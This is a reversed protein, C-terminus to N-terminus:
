RIVLLKAAVKGKPGSDDATQSPCIYYVGSKVPAGGLDRLNWRFTGGLSTGSHVLNGMADVVKVLSANMLGDVTVMGNYGPRVPNPYVRVDDFDDHGPSQESAYVGMGWAGGVYVKNTLPDLALASVYNSPLPSNDTTFQEVIEDYEPSIVSVGSGETSVWMRGASDFDISSVAVNNLLYSATGTGDNNNVKFRRVRDRAPDFTAPNPIAFFGNRSAIILQGNPDEAAATVLQMNIVNGDQDYVNSFGVGGSANVDSPNSGYRYIYFNDITYKGGVAICNSRPLMRLFGDVDCNFSAPLLYSGDSRTTLWDSKSISAAPLSVKAAPLMMLQPGVKSDGPAANSLLVWLNGASDFCVDQIRQGYAGTAPLNDVTPKYSVADSTGAFVAEAVRGRIRFLGETNTAVWMQDPDLPNQAVGLPATIVDGYRNRTDATTAQYVVRSVAMLDDSASPTFDSVNGDAVIDIFCPTYSGYAWFGGMSELQLPEAMAGSGSLVGESNARTYIIIADRAANPTMRSVNVVSRVDPRHAGELLVPPKQSLDYHLIGDPTAIWTHRLADTSSITSFRTLSEPYNGAAGWGGGENFRAILSSSLPLYLMDTDFWPDVNKRLYNGPIVSDVMKGTYGWPLEVKHIRRAGSATASEAAIVDAGVRYIRTAPSAGNDAAIRGVYTFKDTERYSHAPDAPESSYLHGGTFLAMLRDGAKVLSLPGGNVNGDAGGRYQGSEAVRGTDCNLVVLGFDTSIYAKSGIFAIDRIERTGAIQADRIASVATVSGDPNIVDLNADDYVVILYRSDPDGFLGTARVGSLQADPTLAVTEQTSPNYTFINIGSLYYIKDGVPHIATTRGGEFAPPFAWQGTVLQARSSLGAALATIIFAIVSLAKRM